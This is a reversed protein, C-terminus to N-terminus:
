ANKQDWLVEDHGFARACARALVFFYDSVRNLYRLAEPRVSAEAALEVVTREARRCVTRAHHAAAGCPGGGPLIFSRLSPLDANLADISGELQEVQSAEIQLRDARAEAGSDPNSLEAGLNFLRQQMNELEADVTAAFSEDAARERDLEVRLLGVTANLEDVEGYARVRLSSKAVTSGDSLMTEGADGFRTYVKSIHVM